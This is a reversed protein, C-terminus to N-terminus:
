FIGPRRILTQTYCSCHPHRRARQASSGTATSCRGQRPHPLQMRYSSTKHTSVADLAGPSTCLEGQTTKRFDLTAVVMGRRAHFRARTELWEKQGIVWAGGHVMVLVPRAACSDAAASPAYIDITMGTTGYVQDNETTIQADTFRENVLWDARRACGPATADGGADSGADDPVSSADSSRPSSGCGAVLLLATVIQMM